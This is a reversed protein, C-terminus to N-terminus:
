GRKRLESWPTKIGRPDREWEGTEALLAKVRAAEERALGAAAQPRAAARGALALMRRTLEARVPAGRSRVALRATQEACVAAAEAALGGPDVGPRPHLDLRPRKPTGGVIVSASPLLLYATFLVAGRPTDPPLNVRLPPRDAPM